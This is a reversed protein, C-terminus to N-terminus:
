HFGYGVAIGQGRFGMLVVYGGIALSGKKETPSELCFGSAASPNAGPDKQHWLSHREM